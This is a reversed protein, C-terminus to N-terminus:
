RACYKAAPAAKTHLYMPAYPLAGFSRYWQYGELRDVESIVSKFGFPLTTLHPVLVFQLEVDADTRAGLLLHSVLSQDPYHTLRSRVASRDIIELPPQHFSAVVCCESHDRTCDWVRGRAWDRFESQGIAIAGPRDRIIAGPATGRALEARVHALDRLQHDIWESLRAAGDPTLLLARGSRGRLPEGLQQM